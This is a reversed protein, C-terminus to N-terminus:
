VPVHTHYSLVLPLSLMKAIILAGFCQFPFYLSTAHFKIYAKYSESPAGMLFFFVVQEVHDLANWLFPDRLIMLRIAQVLFIFSNCHRHCVKLWFLSLFYANWGSVLKPDGAQVVPIAFLKHISRLVAFTQSINIAGRNTVGDEIEKAFLEPSEPYCCKNICLRWRRM